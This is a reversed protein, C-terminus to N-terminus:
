NIAIFNDMYRRNKKKRYRRALWIMLPIFIVAFIGIGIGIWMKRNTSKKDGQFPSDNPNNPGVHSVGDMNDLKDTVKYYGSDILKGWENTTHLPSNHNRVQFNLAASQKLLESKPNVAQSNKTISMAIYYHPESPESDRKHNRQNAVEVAQQTAFIMSSFVRNRNIDLSDAVLNPLANFTQSALYNNAGFLNRYPALIRLNFKLCQSCTSSLPNFIVQPYQPAPPGSTPAPGSDRTTTTYDNVLRSWDISTPVPINEKTSSSSSSTTPIVVHSTTSIPPPPPKESTTSEVEHISSPEESSTLSLPPLESLVTTSIPPLDESTSPPPPESLVTSTFSVHESTSSPPPPPPLESLVTSTFPVHESTTPPPPLDSLVTSTPPPHESIVTSTLPPPLVHSTTENPESTADTQTEVIVTDTTPPLINSTMETESTTEPDWPWHFSTTETIWPWGITTTEPEESWHPTTTETIWPWHFSTTEPEWPWHFSTTTLEETTSEEIPPLLTPPLIPPWTLSTILTDDSDNGDEESSIPETPPRTEITHHTTFPPPPPPHHNTSTLPETSTIEVSTGASSTLEEVFTTTFLPPLLDSLSTEKVNSSFESTLEETLATTFPPPPPLLDSLSTEEKKSSTPEVDATTTPSLITSSTAESLVMTTFPDPSSEEDVTITSIKGKTTPFLPPLLPIDKSTTLVKTTEPLPLLDSTPEKSSHESSPEKHSTTPVPKEHSTIPNEHSTPLLPPLLGRSSTPKEHTTPLLPPLLGHTSTPEPKHDVLGSSEEDVGDAAGPVLPDEDVIGLINPLLGVPETPESSSGHETLESTHSSTVQPQLIHVDAVVNIAAIMALVVAHHSARILM